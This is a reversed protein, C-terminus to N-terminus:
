SSVKKLLYTKVLTLLEVYDIPKAIIDDCGAKLIRARDEKTTYATQAIIPLNPRFVKIESTAEYGNKIPIGIDMLVVDIDKNEKCFDIADQGNFAHIVKSFLNSKELYRQMLMANVADDEVMLVVNKKNIIPALELKIKKTTTKTKVPNHPITVTFTSGQNKKSKVFIQGGLLEVHEKVISLGLGLGGYSSATTLDEQAFREFIRTLKNDKIGIGTDSISFEINGNIFQYSCDVSGKQTFKFANQLINNLIKNLKTEDTLVNSDANNVDYNMTLKVGKEDGILSFISFLDFLMNNICVENIKLRDGNNNLKSIELVEDIIRILQQGSNQITSVYQSRKSPTLEKDSLFNSFGIIGNLPTRIEHSINNLFETKLRDSEEAKEKAGILEMEAKKIATVDVISVIAASSVGIIEFTLIAHILDGNAKLFETESTFKRHGAAISILEQKLVRYSDDNFTVELHQKLEEKTKVGFLDLSCLNVNVVDIKSICESVFEPHSEIYNSFDAVEENKNSVLELVDGLDEEWLSVPTHEFLEKFRKRSSDLLVNKTSLINSVEVLKKNQAFLETEANVRETINVISIISSLSENEKDYKFYLKVLGHVLDGSYDVFTTEKILEKNGNFMAELISILLQMTEENFFKELNNEIDQVSPVKVLKKLAKNVQLIIISKLCKDVFAPNENLYLVINTIGKSQLSQILKFTLTVDQEMFAVLSDDFLHKFNERSAYLEDVKEKLKLTFEEKVFSSEKETTIDIFYGQLKTAVKNKMVITTVDRVWAISKDAKIVRYEIIHNVGSNVCKDFEKIVEDQDDRHISDIWLSYGQWHDVSYGTLSEILAGIYTFKKTKLDLEWAVTETTEILNRYLSESERLSKNLAKRETVNRMTAQVYQEENLEFCSLSVEADFYEGNQKKHIWPFTISNGSLAIKINEKSLVASDIGDYQLEPSWHSPATGIIKSKNECGFMSVTMENCDFFVGEKVLIIADKAQEFILRHRQDSEKLAKESDLMLLRTAFIGALTSVLNEHDDTFYYKDPHETDIVGLLKGNVVLPFALESYRFVEDPIYRSDKSTDGIRIPKRAKAAAGVVGEGIKLVSSPTEVKTIIEDEKSSQNQILCDRKEDFLYVVCDTFHFKSILVNTLESVLENISKVSQVARAFNNVALLYNSKSQLKKHSEDLKLKQRVIELEAQKRESVDRIATIRKLRGGFSINRGQIEAHFNTGDKKVMVVDYPKEHGNKLNATVTPISEAAIIETAYMGIAESDSYGLMKKAALNQEMCYGNESVFIAEFGSNSFVEDSYKLQKSYKKQTLEQNNYLQLDMVHAEFHTINGNEDKRTISEEHVLMWKGSKMKLRFSVPVLVDLKENVAQDISVQYRKLDEPHILDLYGIEGSLFYELQYGLLYTFKNSVFEIPGNEQNKWLIVSFSIPSIPSILENPKSLDATLHPGKM